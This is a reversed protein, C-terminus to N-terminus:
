RYVPTFTISCLDFPNRADYNLKVADTPTKECVALYKRANGSMQVAAWDMLGHPAYLPPEHVYPQEHLRFVGHLWACASPLPHASGQARDNCLTLTSGWDGVPGNEACLVVATQSPGPVAASQLFEREPAKASCFHLSAAQTAGQSSCSCPPSLLIMDDQCERLEM